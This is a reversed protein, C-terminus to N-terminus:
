ILEEKNEVIEELDQNATQTVGVEQTVVTGSTLPAAYERKKEQKLLLRRGKILAKSLNNSTKYM